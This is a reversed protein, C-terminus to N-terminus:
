FYSAARSAAKKTVGVPTQKGTTDQARPLVPHYALARRARTRARLREDGEGGGEGGELGRVEQVGMLSSKL